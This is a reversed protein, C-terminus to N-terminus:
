KQAISPAITPLQRVIYRPLLMLARDSEEDLTLRFADGPAGVMINQIRQVFSDRSDGLPPTWVVIPLRDYTAETGVWWHGTDTQRVQLGYRTLLNELTTAADPGAHPLVLREPAAGRRNADYWNFLCTAQNLRATRRLFGAIAIPSDIQPGAEGGVLVPWEASVDSSLCAWRHMREDNVKPELQRMRRLVETALAELQKLQRENGNGEGALFEKLVQKASEKGAGFDDLNTLSDVAQGFVQDSLTLVVLSEEERLEAGLAVSADNLIERASRWAKQTPVRTEVDVGALDFSVWDLQIPVGSVQGILLVLDSMPYGDSALALRIALDAKLNLTRPKVPVVPAANEQEQAAADVKIEEMMPPAELTPAQQAVDGLLFRTYKQLEPPLDQMGGADPDADDGMTADAKGNAPDAQNMVADAAEAAANLANMPDNSLPTLVPEPLLDNPIVQDQALPTSAADSADSDPATTPDVQVVTSETTPDPESQDPNAL